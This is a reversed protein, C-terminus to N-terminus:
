NRLGCQQRAVWTAAKVALERMNFPKSMSDDWGNLGSHARNEVSSDVTMVVVPTKKHTPLERIRSCVDMGNVDPLSGDLLVLDFVEKELMEIAQKPTRCQAASIDATKLADSVTGLLALDGDIVLARATPAEAAKRFLRPDLLAGIVEAAQLLTRTVGPEFTWPRSRADKVLAACAAALRQAAHGSVPALAEALAVSLNTINQSAEDPNDCNQLTELSARM